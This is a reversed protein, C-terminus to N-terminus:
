RNSCLIGLWTDTHFNYFTEFSSIRVKFHETNNYRTYSSIGQRCPESLLQRGDIAIPTLILSGNALLEYSGHQWQMIGSPCSPDVALVLFHSTLQQEETDYGGTYIRLSM